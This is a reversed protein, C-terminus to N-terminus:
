GCTIYRFSTAWEHEVVGGNLFRTPGAGRQQPADLAGEFGRDRCFREAVPMGCRGRLLGEVGVDSPCIDLPLGGLRPTRFTRVRGDGRGRMDGGGDEDRWGVRADTRGYARRDSRRDTREDSRWEDRRDRDRRDRRDRDQRYGGRDFADDSYGPQASAASALNTGALAALVMMVTKM